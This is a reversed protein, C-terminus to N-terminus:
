ESPGKRQEQRHAATGALGLLGAILVAGLLNRATEPAGRNNGRRQAWMARLHGDPLGPVPTEPDGVLLEVDGDGNTMVEVAVGAAILQDDSDIKGLAHVM